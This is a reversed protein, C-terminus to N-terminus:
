KVAAYCLFFRDTFGRSVWLGNFFSSGGGEWGKPLVGGPVAVKGTGGRHGEGEAAGGGAGGKSGCSKNVLRFLKSLKQHTHTHTHVSHSVRPM